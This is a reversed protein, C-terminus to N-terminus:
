CPTTGMPSTPATQITPELVAASAAPAPAGTSSAIGHVILHALEDTDLGITPGFQPMASSFAVLRVFKFVQAPPVRLAELDPALLEDFIDTIIELNQAPPRPRSGLSAFVGFIGSFRELFRALVLEVKLELPLSPDISRLAARFPEPDLFHEVAADIIAEKDDFVRFLTGEAVGSADAIQRTTVDRGHAVLLPLTAQAIAARREEVPMPRARTSRETNSNM